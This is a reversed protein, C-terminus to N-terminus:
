GGRERVAFSHGLSERACLEANLRRRWRTIRQPVLSRRVSLLCSHRSRDNDRSRACSNPAYDHELERAMAAGTWASLLAEIARRGPIVSFSARRGFSMLSSSCNRRWNSAAAADHSTFCPGAEGRAGSNAARTRYRRFIHAAKPRGLTRSRPHPVPCIKILSSGTMLNPM